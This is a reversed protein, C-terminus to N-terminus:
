ATLRKAAGAVSPFRVRLVCGPCATNEGGAGHEVRRVVVRPLLEITGGMGQVVSKAVSLGVGAGHAKTTFGLNFVRSPDVGKPLGVGDDRVELTCWARDDRGYAADKPAADHRLEVEVRGPGAGSAAHRRAIAEIANQVGNLAVTYVAGAPSDALSPAIECTVSVQHREALPRCVDVAHHIAEGLTVPRARTLHPSGIPHAQSQMAAHVLESMRDLDTAASHLHKEAATVVSANLLTSASITKKAKEVSALSHDILGHLQRFLEGVRDVQAYTAGPSDDALRFTGENHPRPQSHPSTM